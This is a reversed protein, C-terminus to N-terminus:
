PSNLLFRHQIPSAAAIFLRCTSSIMSSSIFAQLVLSAFYFFVWEALTLRLECSAQRMTSPALTSSRPFRRSCAFCGRAFVDVQRSWPASISVCSRLSESLRRRHLFSSSFSCLFCLHTGALYNWSIAVLLGSPSVCALSGWRFPFSIKALFGLVFKLYECVSGPHYKM